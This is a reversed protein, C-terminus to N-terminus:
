GSIPKIQIKPSIFHSPRIGTLWLCFLYSIVALCLLANLHIIRWKIPQHLWNYNDSKLCWLCIGMTINAFCLKSIFKLWHYTSCYISQKKLYLLLICSNVLAALSTALAIGAHALPIILMCNFMINAIMAIIGIRVPTSVNQKAYFSAVFIKILMCPIVGISFMILSKGSMIVAQENFNGYYFLTSLLPLALISMIITAPLSIVLVIKIAWDIILSYNEQSYSECHRSLHPLIVTAIAAGFVGLPFEMLRDSYYLWSLTGTPLLSAFATDLCVNIQAVSVGFIAPVILKILRKVGPHAWYIQPHLTIGTKKLAIIAFILQLIGAIIVAWALSLIQPQFFPALFYVAFIMSLNLIVPAISGVWYQNNTNLIASIFATLCVFLLYPFTIRLMIVALHYSSQHNRYGPAFITVIEPAFIIGCGTVIILVLGLNGCVTNIFERMKDQKTHYSSLVPVFAAAFAGEGFLRRLFNPIRFAISFADFYIGAGFTSATAIDRLFGFIRSLITLGSVIGTSKLLSKSM